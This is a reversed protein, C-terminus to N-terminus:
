VPIGGSPSGGGPQPPRYKQALGGLVDASWWGAWFVGILAFPTQAVSAVTTDIGLYALGGVIAGLVIHRLSDHQDNYITNSYFAWGVAGVAASVVYAVFWTVDM